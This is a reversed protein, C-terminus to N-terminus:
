STRTSRTSRVRSTPSPAKKSGSPRASRTSSAPGPRRSRARPRGRGQGPPHEGGRPAVAAHAQHRPRRVRHGGPHQPDGVVLRRRPRLPHPPLRPVGEEPGRGEQREQVRRRGGHPDRGRLDPGGHEDLRDQERSQVEGQERLRRLHAGRVLTRAPRLPERGRRPEEDDEDEDGYDGRRSGRSWRRSPGDRRGRGRGGAPSRTWPTQSRARTPTPPGVEAAELRGAAGADAAAVPPPPPM